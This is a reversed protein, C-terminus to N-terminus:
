KCYLFLCVSCIYAIKYDSIPENHCVCNVKFKVSDFNNSKFYNVLDGSTLYFTTVLNM